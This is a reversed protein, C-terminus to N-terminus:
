YDAEARVTSISDHHCRFAEHIHEPTEAISIAIVCPHCGVHPQPQGRMVSAFTNVRRPITRPFEVDNDGKAVFCSRQRELAIQFRTGSARECLSVQTSGDRLGHCRDYHSALRGCTRPLAFHDYHDRAFPTLNFVVVFHVRGQEAPLVHAPELAPHSGHVERKRTGRPVTRANRLRPSPLVGRLRSAADAPLNETQEKTSVRVYIVAGVMTPLTSGNAPGPLRRKRPVTEVRLRSVAGPVDRGRHVGDDRRTPPHGRGDQDTM